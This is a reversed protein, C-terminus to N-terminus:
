IYSPSLSLEPHANPNPNPSQSPLVLGDRVRIATQAGHLVPHVVVRPHRHRPAGGTCRSHRASWQVRQVGNYGRYGLAGGPGWHVAQVGVCQRSGMAGVAGRAGWRGGQLGQVEYMAGQAERM